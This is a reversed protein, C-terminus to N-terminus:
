HDFHFRVVVTEGMIESQALDAIHRLMFGTLRRLGDESDGIEADSPRREPLEIPVGEYSVTLHLNYGDFSAEIRIPARANCHDAIAEVFQRLAFSARAVIDRRTGM